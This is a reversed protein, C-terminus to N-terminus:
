RERKIGRVNQKELEILYDPLKYVSELKNGKKKCQELVPKFERIWDETLYYRGIENVPPCPVKGVRILLELRYQNIKLEKAVNCMGIPKTRKERDDRNQKLEKRYCRPCTDSFAGLKMNIYDASPNPKGCKSCYIADLVSVKVKM